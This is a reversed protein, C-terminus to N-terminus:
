FKSALAFEPLYGGLIFCKNVRAKIEDTRETDDANACYAVSKSAGVNVAPDVMLPWSEQVVLGVALPRTSVAVWISPSSVVNPTVGPTVTCLPECARSTEPVPLLPPVTRTTVQKPLSVSTSSLTQTRGRVDVIFLGVPFTNTTMSFLAPLRAAPKRNPGNCLM